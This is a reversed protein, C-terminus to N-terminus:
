VQPATGRRKAAYRAVGFLGTGFLLMTMPEPVPALTKTVSLKAVDGPWSTGPWYLGNPLLYVSWQFASTADVGSVSSNGNLDQGSAIHNLTDPFAGAEHYSNGTVLTQSVVGDCSSTQTAVGDAIYVNDASGVGCLDFDSYQYLQVTPYATNGLFHQITIEETLTSRHSDTDGGSLTYDVKVSINNNQYTVSATSGGGGGTTSPSTTIADIPQNQGSDIRYWFWQQFLREIGDVMWSNMGVPACDSICVTATSNNDELTLTIPAAAADAAAWLLASAVIGGRALGGLFGSAGRSM